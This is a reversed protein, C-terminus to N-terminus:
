KYIKCSLTKSCNVPNKKKRNGQPSPRGETMTENRITKRALYYLDWINEEEIDLRSNGMMKNTMGFMTNKM